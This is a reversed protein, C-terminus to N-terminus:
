AFLCDNATLAHTFNHLTVQDAGANIITDTGSQAIVLDNFSHVGVVNAFEIKDQASQSFDEITNHTGVTAGLGLDKFVFLDTGSQASDTLQGAGWM